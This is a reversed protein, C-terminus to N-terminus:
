TGFGQDLTENVFQRFQPVRYLIHMYKQCGSSRIEFSFQPNQRNWRIDIGM